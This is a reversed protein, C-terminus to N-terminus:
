FEEGEFDEVEQVQMKEWEQIREADHQNKLGQFVGSIILLVLLIVSLYMPRSYNAYTVADNDFLVSNDKLNQYFFTQAICYHIGLLIGCIFCALAIAAGITGLSIYALFGVIMIGFFALGYFIDFSFLKAKQGEMLMRSRKLVDRFPLEENECIIFSIMRYRYSVIIMMVWAAAFMIWGLIMILPYHVGLGICILGGILLLAGYLFVILGMLLNVGFFSLFRKWAFGLDSGIHPAIKGNRVFDLCLKFGFTMFIANTTVSIIGNVVFNLILWEFIIEIFALLVFLGFFGAYSKANLLASASQRLERNAMIGQRM